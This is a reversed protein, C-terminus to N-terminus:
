QLVPTIIVLLQKHSHQRQHSSLMWGVIPVHRVFPIGQQMSGQLTQQIGGLVLSAGNTVVAKTTLQQTQIAPAGAFDLSSLQDQNIHITLLIKNNPLVTPTVRLGLVAKKFAVSTNGTGTKEQYPVEEGAEINAEVRNQTLLTPAAVLTAHGNDILAQLTYSLVGDKTSMLPISVIGGHTPHMAAGWGNDGIYESDGLVGGIQQAYYNDIDIIKAKILIQQNPKDMAAILDSIRNLVANNDSVWIRNNVEDVKIAGQASLLPAKADNLWGAVTQVPLYHINYIRSGLAINTADTQFVNYIKPQATVNLAIFLLCCCIILKRLMINM